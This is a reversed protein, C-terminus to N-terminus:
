FRRPGGGFPNQPRPTNAPTVTQGTVVSDGETLGDLIETAIGDSIGVKIQVPQLATTATNEPSALRYVTRAAQREGRNRGSGGGGPRGPSGSGGGSSGGPRGAPREVPSSAAAVTSAANM